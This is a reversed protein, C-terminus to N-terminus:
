RFGAAFRWAGPNGDRRGACGPVHRGHESLPFAASRARPHAPALSRAFCEGGAEV